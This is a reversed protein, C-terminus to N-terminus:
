IKFFDVGDCNSWKIGIYLQLMSMLMNEISCFYDLFYLFKEDFRWAIKSGYPHLIEVQVFLINNNTIIIHM